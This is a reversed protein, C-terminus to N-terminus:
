FFPYYIKFISNLLLNFCDDATSSLSRYDNVEKIKLYCKEIGNYSALPDQIHRALNPFTLFIISM